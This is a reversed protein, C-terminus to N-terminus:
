KKVWVWYEWLAPEESLHTYNERLYSDFRNTYNTCDWCERSINYVVVNPKEQQLASLDNEEYWDMYWPLMYVAPNIENRDKELLYISDFWFADLYIGEGPETMDVINKELESISTMEVAVNDKVKILFAGLVLFVGVSVLCRILVDRKKKMNCLCLIIIVAAVYWGSLAHFNDFGRTGAFMILWIAALSEFTKKQIFGVIVCIIAGIMLFTQTIIASTAGDNFIAVVGNIVFSFIESFGVFFPQIASDGMNGPLYSSYVERNFLYAQEYFDLLAGNMAFYVVFICAPIIMAVLLRAYRKIYYAVNEKNQIGWIIENAIVLVVIGILSYVSVFSVGVAVYFCISIIASRKWDIKHDQLYGLYELYLTLIALGAVAESLIQAGQMKMVALVFLPIGTTLLYMKRSGIKEKNRAYILGYVIAQFVYYSLRFQELSGAGLLAFFGCLYYAIPTHQTIYDRYIVSGRAISFGGRINDYEDTFSGGAFAFSYFLLFSIASALLTQMLLDNKIPKALLFLYCGRALMVAIFVMILVAFGMWWFDHNGGYIKMCLDGEAVLGNYDLSGECINSCSVGFGIKSMSDVTIARLKITYSQGANVLLNEGLEFKYFDNNVFRSANYEKSFTVKGTANEILSLEWISNNDREFTGTYLDIANIIEYPMIFDQRLESETNEVIVYSETQANINTYEIYTLKHYAWCFGVASFFILILIALLVLMKQKNKM